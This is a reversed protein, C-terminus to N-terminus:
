ANVNGANKRYKLLNEEGVETVPKIWKYTLFHRICMFAKIYDEGIYMIAYVAAFPLKIVFAAIFTLPLATLWIGFIDFKAGNLTDGGSRFIGVIFTYPINRIPLELAYILMIIKATDITVQTLEGTLNFLGIIMNRLLVICMGVVFGMAPILFAFRKSDEVAEKIRGAGINKGVMVCCANSMGVFFICSINEVTKLITVAAYSEYGLNAFIVNFLFSGLGWLCENIVVPASTKFFEVAFAKDFSFMDRVPMYLINKKVISVIIIIIPGMWASIVTAAAAGRVGMAPIGLAGYILVYDLIANFVTTFLASFVPLKVEETSRLVAGLLAGLVTGPYSFAAIRLYASGTQIIREDHNFIRLVTGPAIFGALTFFVMIVASIVASLGLVKRIGRINKIGWYQSVFISAASAIGLTVINLLWSWQGAMGVASLEVAGLQGVMLTDVMTFSSTLLNQFAIPLALMMVYKWFSKGGFYQKIINKGNM